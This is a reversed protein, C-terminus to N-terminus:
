EVQAEWDRFIKPDIEGYFKPFVNFLM